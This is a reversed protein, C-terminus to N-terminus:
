IWYDPQNFDLSEPIDFVSVEYVISIEASDPVSGADRVIRELDQRNPESDIIETWFRDRWYLVSPVIGSIGNYYTGQAPPFCILMDGTRGFIEDAHASEVSLVHIERSLTEHPPPLLYEPVELPWSRVVYYLTAQRQGIHISRYSLYRVSRIAHALKQIM